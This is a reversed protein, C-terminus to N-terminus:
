FKSNSHKISDNRQVKSSDKIIHPYEVICYSCTVMEISGIKKISTNIYLVDISQKYIVGALM